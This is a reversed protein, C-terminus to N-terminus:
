NKPLDVSTIENNYFLAEIGIVKSSENSSLYGTLRAYNNWDVDLQYTAIIKKGADNFEMRLAPINEIIRIIRAEGLTSVGNIERVCKLKGEEEVMTVMGSYAHNSASDKGIIEYAGVFFGLPPEHQNGSAGANAQASCLLTAALM